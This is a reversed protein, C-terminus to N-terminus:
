CGGIPRRWERGAAVSDLSDASATVGEVYSSGTVTYSTGVLKDGLLTSAKVDHGCNNRNTLM